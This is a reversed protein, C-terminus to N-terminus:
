ELYWIILSFLSTPESLELSSKWSPGPL